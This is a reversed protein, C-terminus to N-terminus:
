FAISATFSHRNRGPVRIPVGAERSVADVTMDDLFVRSGHKLMVSPILAAAYGATDQKKLTAVIDQGTVLGAVDVAEGWFRNEVPLTDVFLGDIDNLRTVIPALIMAGLRGTLILLNRPPDIAQPLTDELNFFDQLLMRATGVGDDLQPFDGYESYDPFPLGAKLYFEDSLYAFERGTDSERQFREVVAVVDKASAADVPVLDPLEGRYRTLGVPVVAVSQAEPRLAALDM